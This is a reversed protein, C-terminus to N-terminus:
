AGPTGFIAINQRRGYGGADDQLQKEVRPLWEPNYLGEFIARIIEQQDKTYFESAISPQTIHWNNSVFTRLLKREPDTHEWDFCVVSRQKEDLSDYLNKVLTEPQPKAAQKDAALAAPAISAAVTAASAVRLFERRDLGDASACDPCAAPRQQSMPTRRCNCLHRHPPQTGQPQPRSAGTMAPRAAIIFRAWRPAFSGPTPKPTPRPRSRFRPLTTPWSSGSPMQGILPWCRGLSPWCRPRAALTTPSMSCCLGSPTPMPAM